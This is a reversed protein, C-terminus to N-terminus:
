SYRQLNGKRYSNVAKEITKNAILHNNKVGKKKIDILRFIIM